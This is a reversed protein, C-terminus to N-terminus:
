GRRKLKLIDIVLLLLLLIGIIIIDVVVSVLVVVVPPADHAHTTRITFIPVRRRSARAFNRRVRRVGVDHKATSIPPLVEHELPKIYIRHFNFLTQIRTQQRVLLIRVLRIVPAFPPIIASARKRADPSHEFVGADLHHIAAHLM